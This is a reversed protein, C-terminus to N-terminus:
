PNKTMMEWAEKRPHLTGLRQTQGEWEAEGGGHRRQLPSPPRIASVTALVALPPISQCVPPLKSMISHLHPLDCTGISLTSFGMQNSYNFATEHDRAQPYQLTCNHLITNCVRRYCAGTCPIHCCLQVKRAPFSKCQAEVLVPPGADVGQELVM